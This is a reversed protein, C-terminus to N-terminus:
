QAFFTELLADAEEQKPSRESSWSESMMAVINSKTLTRDEIKQLIFARFEPDSEYMRYLINVHRGGGIACGSWTTGFFRYPSGQAFKWSHAHDAPLFDQRFHTESIRERTPTLPVSFGGWSGLRWQFLDKQAWCTQCRYSNRERYHFLVAAVVVVGLAFYWRKRSKTTM